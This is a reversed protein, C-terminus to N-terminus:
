FILFSSFEKQFLMILLFSIAMSPGFPLMCLSKNGNEDLKNMDSLIGKACLLVTVMVFITFLIAPLFDTILNYKSVMLCILILLISFILSYCTKKKGFKFSNIFLVPISFIAMVIVSLIVSVIMYKWGFFAGIGLAIYSDGEGFARQKAFIYGTRAIIEYILFGSIAGSLSFILGNTGNNILNYLVGFFALIYAHCDFIIQEKIDTISMVLLLCFAILYFVTEVSYSFKYFILYFFLGCIFEVLPYQFSIKSKCFGCKGRLFIYSLVPINMWFRLKNGCTPCKSPPYVISDGNLGRIVVVNLFSGICLGVVFIWVSFFIYIESNQLIENM